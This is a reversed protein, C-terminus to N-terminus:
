FGCHIWVCLLVYCFILNLIGVIGQLLPHYLKSNRMDAAFANKPCTPNYYIDIADGTKWVKMNKQREIITQIWEGDVTFSVECYTHMSSDSLSLGTAMEAVNVALDSASYNTVVPRVVTATCKKCRDVLERMPKRIKAYELFKIVTYVFWLVITLYLIPKLIRRPYKKRLM